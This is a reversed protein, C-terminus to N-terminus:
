IEAFRPSKYDERLQREKKEERACKRLIISFLGASKGSLLKGM